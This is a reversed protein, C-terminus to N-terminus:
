LRAEVVNIKRFCKSPSRFWIMQSSGMARSFTGVGLRAALTRLSFQQELNALCSGEHSGSCALSMTLRLGKSIPM